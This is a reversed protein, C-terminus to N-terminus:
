MSIREFLGMAEDCAEKLESFIVETDEPFAPTQKDISYRFKTM